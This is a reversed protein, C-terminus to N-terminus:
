SSNSINLEDVDSKTLRKVNSRDQSATTSRGKSGKVTVILNNTSMDPMDDIERSPDAPDIGSSKSFETNHFIDDEGPADQVHIDSDVVSKVPIDIEDVHQPSGHGQEEDHIASAMDADDIMVGHMDVGEM